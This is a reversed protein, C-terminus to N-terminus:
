QDLRIYILGDPHYNEYYQATVVFGLCQSLGMSSQISSFNFTLM